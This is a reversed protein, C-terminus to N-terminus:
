DNHARLLALINRLKPVVDIRNTDPNFHMVDNRVERLEALRRTFIVRDLPWGLSEWIAQNQLVREYDGMTLEDVSRLGRAGDADCVGCVLDFRLRAVLRRLRRDLEGILLFPLALEGYLLVVDATTVIGSIVRQDDEVFVFGEEVLRSLVEVLPRDYREPSTPIIAHGLPADPKALRTQAISQWTVAGRLNRGKVMVPLQSFDNLAMETIAEEFTAQPTVSVLGGMASPLNGLTLGIDGVDGDDTTAAVTATGIVAVAVDPSVTTEEVLQPVIGLVVRSDLTVRRFDPLTALGHNELDAVIREDMEFGRTTAGWHLLLERVSMATPEGGEARRRAGRLFDHRAGPDDQDDDGTSRCALNDLLETRLDDLSRGSTAVVWAHWGDMARIEAAAVAAKSPTAFSQGDELV